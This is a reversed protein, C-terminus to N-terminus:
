KISKILLQPDTNVKSNDIITILDYSNSIQRYNSIIASDIKVKDLPNYVSYFALIDLQIKQYIKVKEVNKQFNDKSSLVNPLFYYVSALAATSLFFAKLLPSSNRWGENGILFASITLLTTFVIACISFSYFNIYYSKTLYNHQQKIQQCVFYQNKLIKLQPNTDTTTKLIDLQLSDARSLSSLIEQAAKQAYYIATRHTIFALMILGFCILFFQGGKSKIFEMKFTITKCITHTNILRM